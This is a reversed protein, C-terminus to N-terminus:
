KVKIEESQKIFFAPNDVTIYEFHGEAAFKNNTPVFVVDGAKVDFAENGAYIKGKGKTVYIVFCCKHEIIFTNKDKPHRGKVVMYGIDM